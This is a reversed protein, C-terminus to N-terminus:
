LYDCQEHFCICVAAIDYSDGIPQEYRKRPFVANDSEKGSAISVHCTLASVICSILTM